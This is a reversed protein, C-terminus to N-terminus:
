NLASQQWGREVVTAVGQTLRQESARNTNNV